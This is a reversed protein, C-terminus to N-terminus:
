KLNDLGMAKNTKLGILSDLVSAKTVPPITFKVEPDKRSLVFCELKSIDFTVDPLLNRLQDAVSAFHKNFKDVHCYGSDDHDMADAIRSSKTNDGMLTKITKWINKSNNKSNDFCKNYFKYKASTIMNVVKNRAGKYNDWDSAM